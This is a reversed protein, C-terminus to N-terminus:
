AARKTKESATTSLKQLTRSDTQPRNQANMHYSGSLLLSAGLIAGLCGLIALQDDTLNRFLEFM